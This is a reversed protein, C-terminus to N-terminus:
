EEVVIALREGPISVYAPFGQTRAEEFPQYICAKGGTNGRFSVRTELPGAGQNVLVCARKATRANRHAKYTLNQAAEVVVEQNDLFDGLYITDKLEERIRIVERIYESIPKSQEDGMSASYRVPGVLIQYGYQVARNVNVYDWPQAVAFTPLFEPFTYKMVPVHESDFWLWWADCTSLLRDWHSEV